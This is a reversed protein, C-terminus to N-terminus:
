SKTDSALARVDSRADLRGQIYAAAVENLAPREADKGKAVIAAEERMQERGARRAACVIAYIADVDNQSGLQWRGRDFVDTVQRMWDEDAREDARTAARTAACVADRKFQAIIEVLRAFETAQISSQYVGGPRTQMWSLLLEKAQALDTSPPTADPSSARPRQEQMEADPQPSALAADQIRRLEERLQAQVTREALLQQELRV